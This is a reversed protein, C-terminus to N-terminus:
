ERNGRFNNLAHEIASLLVGSDFPKHILTEAGTDLVEQYAPQDASSSTLIVRTHPSVGRIRAVLELGNMDPLHSDAVVVTPCIRAISDLAEFPNSFTAVHFGAETLLDFLWVLEDSTGQVVHITRSSSGANAIPLRTREVSLDDDPPADVADTERDDPRKM